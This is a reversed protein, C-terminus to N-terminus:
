IGSITIRAIIWGSIPIFTTSSRSCFVSQDGLEGVERVREEAEDRHEDDDAVDVGALLALLEFRASSRAIPCNVGNYRAPLRASQRGSADLGYQALRLALGIQREVKLRGLPGLKLRGAVGGGANAPPTTGFKAM